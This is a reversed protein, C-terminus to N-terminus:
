GFSDYVDGTVVMRPFSEVLGSGRETFELFVKEEGEM